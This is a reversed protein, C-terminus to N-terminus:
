NKKAIEFNNNNINEVEVFNANETLSSREETITGVTLFHQKSKLIIVCKDYAGRLFSENMLVVVSNNESM